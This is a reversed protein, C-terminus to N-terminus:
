HPCCSPITIISCQSLYWEVLDNVGFHDLLQLKLPQYFM